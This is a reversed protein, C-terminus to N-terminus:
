QRINFMSFQFSVKKPDPISGGSPNFGPPRGNIPGISSKFLGYVNSVFFLYKRHTRFAFITSTRNGMFEVLDMAGAMGKNRLDSILMNNGATDAYYGTGAAGCSGSTPIATYRHGILGRLEPTNMSEYCVRGGTFTFPKLALAVHALAYYNFSFAFGELYGDIFDGVGYPDDYFIGAFVKREFRTALGKVPKSGSAGTKPLLSEIMVEGTSLDFEYSCVPTGNLTSSHGVTGTEKNIYITNSGPELQVWRGFVNVKGDLIKFM